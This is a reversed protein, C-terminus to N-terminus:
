GGELKGGKGGRLKKGVAGGPHLDAFRQLSFHGLIAFLACIADTVAANALSSGMALVGFPDAGEVDLEIVHDSLKALTSSANATLAIVKAGRSHAIRALENTEKTEGGKSIVFIVDNGTITGSAGHLADGPHLFFAPKECCSALHAFRGAVFASTGAGSVILRGKCQLIAKTAEVFSGGLQPPVKRVVETEGEITMRARELMERDGLPSM